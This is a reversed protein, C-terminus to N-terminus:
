KQLFELQTKEKDRTPFYCNGILVKVGGLEGRLIVYRGDEDKVVSDLKLKLHSAVLILVGRSHNSGHSFFVPGDWDSEWRKEVDVTSYTEQLLIIDSGKGKCWEFVKKRKARDRIGRVNLSMLTLQSKRDM